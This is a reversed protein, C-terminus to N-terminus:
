DEKKINLDRIIAEIKEGNDYTDDKIAYKSTIGVVGYCEATASGAVVSIAEMSINIGGYPTKKDITMHKGGCKFYHDYVMTLKIM